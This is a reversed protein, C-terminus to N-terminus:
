TAGHNECVSGLCKRCFTHQCATPMAPDTFVDMCISCILHKSIRSREVFLRKTAIPEPEEEKKKPLNKVERPLRIRTQRTRPPM